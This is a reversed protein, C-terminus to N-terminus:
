IKQSKQCINIYITVNDNINNESLTKFRKLEEGNFTLYTNIEKYKPCINYIKQEIMALTETNKCIIPKIFSHDASMFNIALLKEGNEANFNSDYIKPTEKSKNLSNNLDFNKSKLNKNEEKLLSIEM